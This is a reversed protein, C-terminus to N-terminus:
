IIIIIYIIINIMYINLSDKCSVPYGFSSYM